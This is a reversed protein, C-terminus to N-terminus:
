LNHRPYQGYLLEWDRPCAVLVFILLLTLWLWALVAVAARDLFRFWGEAARSCNEHNGRVMIWPATAFLPASPTFFDGNWVDWGYGTQTDECASRSCSERYLYDGVHIVLDPRAVAAHMTVKAYPWESHNPCDQIKKKKIRCGTDGFIVIRQVEARPLPLPKGDLLVEAKGNPLSAECVRVPFNADPPLNGESFIPGPEARVQMELLEGDATLIPCGTDESVIVRASATRGPGIFEVWASFTEAFALEPVAGIRLTVVLVGIAFVLLRVFPRLSAKPPRRVEQEAPMLAGEFPRTPTSMTRCFVMLIAKHLEDFPWSPLRKSLCEM